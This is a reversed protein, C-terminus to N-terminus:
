PSIGADDGQSCAALNSFAVEYYRCITTWYKDGDADEYDARGFIAPASQKYDTMDGTISAVYKADAGPLLLSSSCAKCESVGDESNFKLYATKFSAHVKLAPSRGANKDIFMATLNEGRKAGSSVVEFGVWPRNQAQMERLQNIAITALLLTAIAVYFTFRAVPDRQGLWWIPLKRHVPASM